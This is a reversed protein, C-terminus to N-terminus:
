KQRIEKILPLMSSVDRASQFLALGAFDGYGRSAGAV